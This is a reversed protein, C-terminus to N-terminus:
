QKIKAPKGQQEQEYKVKNVKNQQWAQENEHKKNLFAACEGSASARKDMMCKVQRGEGPQVNKCLREFDARCVASPDKGDKAHLATAAGLLLLIAFVSKTM